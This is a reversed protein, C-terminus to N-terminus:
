LFIFFMKKFNCWEKDSIVFIMSIPWIIEESFRSEFIYGVRM